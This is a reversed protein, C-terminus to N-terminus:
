GLPDPVHKKITEYQNRKYSLFYVQQVNNEILMMM